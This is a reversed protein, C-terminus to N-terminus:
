YAIISILHYHHFIAICAVNFNVYKGFIRRTGKFKRKIKKFNEKMGRVIMNM